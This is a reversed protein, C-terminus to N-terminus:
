IIKKNEKLFPKSFLKLFYDLIVLKNHSGAAECDIPKM